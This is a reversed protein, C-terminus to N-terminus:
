LFSPDYYELPYVQVNGYFGSQTNHKNTIWNKQNYYFWEPLTLEDVNVSCFMLNRDFDTKIRVNPNLEKIREIINNAKSMKVEEDFVKSVETNTKKVINERSVCQYILSDPKLTERQPIMKIM